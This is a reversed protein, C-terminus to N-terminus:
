GSANQARIAEGRREIDEAFIELAKGSWRVEAMPSGDPGNRVKLVEIIADGPVRVIQKRSGITELSVTDRSRRYLTSSSM